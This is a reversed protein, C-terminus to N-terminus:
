DNISAIWDFDYLKEDDIKSLFRLFHSMCPKVNQKINFDLNKYEKKVIDKYKRNWELLKDYDLKGSLFYYFKNLASSIKTNSNLRTSDLNHPHAKVQNYYNIFENLDEDDPKTTFYNERVRDKKIPTVKQGLGIQLGRTLYKHYEQKQRPTAYDELIINRILRRLAKEQM